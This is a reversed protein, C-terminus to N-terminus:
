RMHFTLQLFFFLFFATLFIIFFAILFVWSLSALFICRWILGSFIFAQFLLCDFTPVERDNISM